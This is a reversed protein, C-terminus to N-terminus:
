ARPRPVGAMIIWALDRRREPGFFDSYFLAAGVVIDAYDRAIVEYLGMISGFHRSIASPDCGARKAIAPTLPRFNGQQVMSMTAAIIAKRTVDSRYRRGDHRATARAAHPM